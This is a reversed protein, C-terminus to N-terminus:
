QLLWHVDLLSDLVVQCGMLGLDVNESSDIVSGTRDFSRGLYRRLDGAHFGLDSVDSPRLQCSLINQIFSWVERSIIQISQILRVSILKNLTFVLSLCAPANLRLIVIARFVLKHVDQLIEVFM